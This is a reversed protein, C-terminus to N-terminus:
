MKPKRMNKTNKTPSFEEITIGDRNFSSLFQKMRTIELFHMDEPKPENEFIMANLTRYKAGVFKYNM